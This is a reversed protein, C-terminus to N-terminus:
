DDANGKLDEPEVRRYGKRVRGDTGHRHARAGGNGTCSGDTRGSRIRIGRQKEIGSRGRRRTSSVQEVAAAQEAAGQALSESANKLQNVATRVDEAGSELDGALGRLGHSLNRMAAATMTGSLLAFAALGLFLGRGSASAAAGGLVAVAAITATAACLLGFWFWLKGLPSMGRRDRRVYIASVNQRGLGIQRRLRLLAAARSRESTEYRTTRFATESGYMPM